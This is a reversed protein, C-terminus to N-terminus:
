DEDFAGFPEAIRWSDPHPPQMRSFLRAIGPALPYDRRGGLGARDALDLWALVETSVHVTTSAEDPDLQETARLKALRARRAAIDAVIADDFAAQDAQVLARCVEVRTDPNDAALDTWEDLMRDLLAADNAGFFRNMLIRLAFFDEEYERGADMAAPAADAIRRAGEDDHCCVADFFAEARSALKEGLPAAELFHAYARASKFLYEYFRRPDGDMLLAGAALRRYLVCVFNFLEEQPPQSPLQELIEELRVGSNSFAIPLVNPKM